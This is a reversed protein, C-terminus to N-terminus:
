RFAAPALLSKAVQPQWNPIKLVSQNPLINEYNEAVQLDSQLGLWADPIMRNWTWVWRTFTSGKAANDPLHIELHSVFNHKKADFDNRWKSLYHLTAITGRVNESELSRNAKPMDNAVVAKPHRMPRPGVLQARAAFPDTWIGITIGLIYVKENIQYIQHYVKTSMSKTSKKMSHLKFRISKYQNINTRVSKMQNSSANGALRHPWPLGHMMIKQAPLTSPMIGDGGVIYQKKFSELTRNRCSQEINVDKPRPPILPVIEGTQAQPM